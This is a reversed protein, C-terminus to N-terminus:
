QDRISVVISGNVCLASPPFHENLIVHAVRDVLGPDADFAERVDATFRGTVGARM